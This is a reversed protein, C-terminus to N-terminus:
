FPVNRSAYLLTQRQIPSYLSPIILNRALADIKALRRQQAEAAAQWLGHALGALVARDEALRAPFSGDPDLLRLDAATLGSEEPM